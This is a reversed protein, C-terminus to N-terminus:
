EDYVNWYYTNETGIGEKKVGFHGGYLASPERLQYAEVAEGPRMSGSSGDGGTRRFSSSFNGRIVDTPSIGSTDRFITDKQEHWPNGNISRKKVVFVVIYGWFLVM